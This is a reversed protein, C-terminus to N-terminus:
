EQTDTQVTRELSLQGRELSATRQDSVLGQSGCVQAWQIECPWPDAARYAMGLTCPRDGATASTVLTGIKLHISPSTM